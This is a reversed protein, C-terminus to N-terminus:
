WGRRKFLVAPLTRAMIRLDKIVSKDRLYELDYRVKRKVDEICSDYFLNIQAWGTIGPRAGQRLSYDDISERMRAFISPREPRPGVINMDGKVVNVLQPLEDLRYKRLFSGIRTTRPDKQTAWVAGTGSEANECMTRFKYITFANGGLDRTRHDHHTALFEGWLRSRPDDRLAGQRRDGRRNLGVRPQGYFVPGKSTLKIAIAVLLMVPAAIILGVSALVINMVRDLRRSHSSPLLGELGAVGPRAGAAILDVVVVHDINAAAAHAAAAPQLDLTAAIFGASSLSNTSQSHSEPREPEVSEALQVLEDSHEAHTEPRTQM